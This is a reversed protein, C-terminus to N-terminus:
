VSIYICVCLFICMYLVCICMYVFVCICLYVFVCMYVFMCIYVHISCSYLKSIVIVDYMALEQVQLHKENKLVYQNIINCEYSGSDGVRASSVRISTGNYRTIRNMFQRSVSEKFSADISYIHTRADATYATSTWVLNAFIGSTRNQCKLKYADDKAVHITKRDLTFLIACFIYLPKTANHRQTHNFM